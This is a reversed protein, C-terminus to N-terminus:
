LETDKLTVEWYNAGIFTLGRFTFHGYFYAGWGGFRHLIVLITWFISFIGSTDSRKGVYVQVSICGIADSCMSRMRAPGFVDLFKM